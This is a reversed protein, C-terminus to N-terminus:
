TLNPVRPVKLVEILTPKKLIRVLRIIHRSTIFTPLFVKTQISVIKAKQILKSLSESKYKNSFNQTALNSKLHPKFKLLISCSKTRKLQKSVKFISINQQLTFTFIGRFPKSCESQNSFKFLWVLTAYILVPITIYQIPEQTPLPGDLSDM